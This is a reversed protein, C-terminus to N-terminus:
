TLLRVVGYVLAAIWTLQVAGLVSLYCVDQVRLAGSGTPRQVYAQHDANRPAEGHPRGDRVRDLQQEPLARSRAAATATSTM